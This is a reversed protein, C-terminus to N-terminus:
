SEDPVLKLDAKAKRALRRAKVKEIVLNTTHVMLVGVVPILVSRVVIEQISPETTTVVTPAETAEAVEIAENM